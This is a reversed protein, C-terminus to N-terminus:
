AYVAEGKPHYAQLQLPRHHRRRSGPTRKLPSPVQKPRPHLRRFPPNPAARLKRWPCLCPPLRIGNQQKFVHHLIHLLTAFKFPNAQFLPYFSKVHSSLHRPPHPHQLLVYFSQLFSNIVSKLVVKHVISFAPDRTRSM